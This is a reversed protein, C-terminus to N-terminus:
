WPASVAEEGATYEAIRRRTGPSTGEPLEGLAFCDVSEIERSSVKRWTFAECVFVAIHDSKGELFSIYVGFLRLEHLEVGAEEAAERAIADRLTEGPQVGGGPLYWGDLYTHKVLLVKGDKVALLRVGVTTPRTM